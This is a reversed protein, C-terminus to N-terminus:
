EIDIGSAGEQLTLYSIYVYYWDTSIGSSDYKKWHWLSLTLTHSM